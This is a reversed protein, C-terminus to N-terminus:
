KRLRWEGSKLKTVKVFKPVDDFPNKIAITQNIEPMDVYLYHSQEFLVRYYGKPVEQREAVKCKEPMSNLPKWRKVKTCWEMFPCTENTISCMNVSVYECM